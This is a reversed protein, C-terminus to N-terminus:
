DNSAIDGGWCQVTSVEKTLSLQKYDDELLSFFSFSFFITIKEKIYITNTSRFICNDLDPVKVRVVDTYTTDRDISNLQSFFSSLM